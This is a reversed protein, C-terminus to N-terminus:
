IRLKLKKLIIVITPIVLISLLEFGPTAQSQYINTYKNDSNPYYDWYTDGFTNLVSTNAGQWTIIHWNTTSNELYTQPLTFNFQHNDATTANNGDITMILNSGDRYSHMIGLGSATTNIENTISYVINPSPVQNLISGPGVSINSYFMNFSIMSGNLVINYYTNSDFEISGKVTLTVTATNNGNNVYSASLIDINPHDSVIQYSTVPLGNSGETTRLRMVDNASDTITPTTQANVSNSLLFIATLLFFVLFNKFQRKM